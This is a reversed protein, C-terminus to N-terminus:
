VDLTHRAVLVSCASYSMAIVAVFTVGYTFNMHTPEWLHQGFGLMSNESQVGACLGWSM